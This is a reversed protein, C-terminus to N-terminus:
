EVVIKDTKTGQDSQMKLVYIGKALNSLPIDISQGASAKPLNLSYVTQGNSNSLMIQVNNLDTKVAVSTKSTAPNPYVLWLASAQPVNIQVISSYHYDGDKDVQKLRYYDVGGLPNNDTFSYNQISLPHDGPAVTGIQTFNVGDASREVEFYDNNLESTTSWKLLVDAGQLQGTFSLWTVPLSATITFNSDDIDLFINGHAKVMIRCTTSTINPVTISASGNNLVNAAVTDTFNNGGDSSLLIDVNACSVPSATTNAVNWTVNQTTNGTWSVATNPATVKFPGSTGDVTVLMDDSNNQGGGPHNDRVTLRFNLPRSVSPLVEWENTNTGDLINPLKPFYRITSVTPSYPRFVPYATYTPEPFGYISVYEGLQQDYQNKSSTLPDFQEWCYTLVDTADADTGAATLVFPTSSPITYDAGASATPAHDGTPTITGCADGAGTTLYLQTQQISYGHFNPISHASDDYDGTTGAYAMITIGSGPEMQADTGEYVFDFTHNSGFQHGIEHIWFDVVFPDSTLDETFGTAGTGKDSAQCVSGIAYANGGTLYGMLVHGIDYNATGILSDCTAQCETNWKGNIGNAKSLFPDTAGDLFIITDENTVYDLRVGFDAEMIGDITTLDIVLASLVEAKEQADTGPTYLLASFEGGCAVAFRYVRLNGDNFGVGAVHEGGDTNGAAAKAETFCQRVLKSQSLHDRDFVIYSKTARDVSEIYVASRTGSLIVAQFGRPTMSFRITSSPDDIGQGAYSKMDPHKVALGAEMVSAEVVRFQEIKGSSVPVSIIFNSKGAAISKESPASKLQNRLADEDLQFAVFKAPKYSNTFVEPKASLANADASTWFNQANAKNCFIVLMLFAVLNFKSKM